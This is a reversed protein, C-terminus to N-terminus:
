ERAEKPKPGRKQPLLPRDPKAELERTLAEGALPRGIAEAQWFVLFAQADPETAIL